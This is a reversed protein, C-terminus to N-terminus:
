ARVRRLAGYAARRVGPRELSAWHIERIDTALERKYRQDGALFDYEDLGREMCAQLCLVHTVVGPRLRNDDFDALGSQYFLASGRDAFLYLCGVTGRESRVRYLLAEGRPGLEAVLDRHFGAFRPSSFAGPRGDRRWRAQHLAILEQLVEASETGSAAFHGELEGFARLSRRVRSRTSSRLVDLVDGTERARRLDTVPAVDARVRLGPLAARLPELAAPTFGDLALRQWGQERRLQAVLARAFAAEEGAVTALANHEVVVSAGPPEGATGLHLTRGKPTALSGSRTVLAVGVPVDGREAIAFRHPVVDGFHRLWLETWRWSCALPLTTTAEVAAWAERAAEPGAIRLRLGSV